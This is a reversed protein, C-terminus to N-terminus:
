DLPIQHHFLMPMARLMDFKSSDLISQEFRSLRGIKALELAFEAWTPYRNAPQKALASMLVIDLEPPLEPRVYSLPAPEEHLIKNQLDPGVKGVFPKEGALLHYLVTGLSFMDSQYTLTDGRVQEPSMYAPTGIIAGVATMGAPVTEAEAPDISAEQIKALGFDLIKLVGDPRVIINGPKLDRHTVGNEHAEDLAAAMQRAYDLVTAEPLAGKPNAGDVFEMVIFHQREEQGVDYIDVISPHRLNAAAMAEHSFRQLFNLDSAHHPHLVKIAVLRNLRLDRGRYVSAMGGDGIKSELEYRQNLIKPQISM